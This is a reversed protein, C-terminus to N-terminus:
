PSWRTSTPTRPSASLAARRRILWAFTSYGVLSGVVVLYRHGGLEATSVADVDFAAWEGTLAAVVAFALGAALMQIGSALLAPAPLVARRARLAHRPVVLGAVRPARRPRGPRPRGRRGGALRPDRRRRPGVVIGARRRAAARARPVPGLRLDRAVDARARHAAGRHRDPDDARGVRRPRDRRPAARGSSRRRRPAAPATPRPMRGRNWAIVLVALLVGAPIFRAAGMVFPPLSDMAVKMGLYTSGWVVYLVLIGIWVALPNAHPRTM